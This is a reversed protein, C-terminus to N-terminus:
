PLEEDHGDPPIRSSPLSELLFVAEDRRTIRGDVQLRLLWRSISGVRPGPELHLLDMIERGSLIPKPAILEEGRRKKMALCRAGLQEIHAIQDAPGAGAGRRDAVSLLCLLVLDEEMRHVLRRISRETVSPGAALSSLRLHNDILRVVRDTRSGSVTLRSLLSRAIGSSHKEHGHFHIGRDDHSVTEAKGTDHLVATWTLVEADLPELVRTDFVDHGNQLLDVQEVVSLTHELADHRHWAGQTLGTLPELPPLVPFLLGTDAMLRLGRGSSLSRLIIEMEGRIREPPVAGIAAARVRTADRFAPDTEFGPLTVALRVGRLMRLPDADLAEVTVLRLRRAELDERGGHPDLVSDRLPKGHELPAAMANITFDRRSLAKEVEGTRCASVDVIRHDVAVRHTAPPRRDFLVPDSGARSALAKLFGEPNGEVLLDLDSVPRELLADRVSGGVLWVTAGISAALGALKSELSTEPWRNM